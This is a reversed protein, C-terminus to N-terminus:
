RAALRSRDDGAVALLMSSPLHVDPSRERRQLHIECTLEAITGTRDWTAVAAYSSSAFRNVDFPGFEDPSAAIGGQAVGGGIDRAFTLDDSRPNLVFERISAAIADILRSERWRPAGELHLTVADGVVYRVYTSPQLYNEGADAGLWSPWVTATEGNITVNVFEDLVRHSLREAEARHGASDLILGVFHHYKVFSVSAHLSHHELFPFQTRPVDNRSRWKKEFHDVLYSTWVDAREGYPVGNPSTLDRNNHFAWAFEAVVAHTRMEDFVHLDKGQHQRSDGHRRVWNLYGDRTGNSGDLTSRWGDNLQARMHEALRDVEDLLALDGSVRFATLLAGIHTHLTRGYQYVDDRRALRTSWEVFDADSLARWLEDYWYRAADSLRDPDFQPDGRLPMPSAPPPALSVEMAMSAQCTAQRSDVAFPRPTATSRVDLRVLVDSTASPTCAAVVVIGVATFWRPLRSRRNLPMSRWEHDNM